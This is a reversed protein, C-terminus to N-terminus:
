TVPAPGSDGLGPTTMRRGDRNIQDILRLQETNVPSEIVSIAEAQGTMASTSRTGGSSQGTNGNSSSQNSLAACSSLLIMAPITVLSKLNIPHNNNKSKNLM